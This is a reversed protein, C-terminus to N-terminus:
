PSKEQDAQRLTAEYACHDSVQEFLNCFLYDYNSARDIVSQPIEKGPSGDRKRWYIHEVSFDGEGWYDTWYEIVAIIPLGGLITAPARMTYHASSM